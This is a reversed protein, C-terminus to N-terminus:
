MREVFTRKGGVNLPIREKEAGSRLAEVYNSYGVMKRYTVVISGRILHSVGYSVAIRVTWSPIDLGAYLSLERVAVLTFLLGSAWSVATVILTWKIYNTRESM